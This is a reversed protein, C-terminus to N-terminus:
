RRPDLAANTISHLYEIVLDKNKLGTAVDVVFDPDIENLLPYDNLDMFTACTIVATRKNGEDFSHNRAFYFLYAAGTEVITPHFRQNFTGGEIVGMVSRVQHEDFGTPQGPELVSFHLDIIEDFTLYLM